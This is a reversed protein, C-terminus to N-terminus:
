VIVDGCKGAVHPFRRGGLEHDPLNREFLV